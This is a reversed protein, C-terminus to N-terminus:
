AAAQLKEYEAHVEAPTRYGLASHLRYAMPGFLVPLGGARAGDIVKALHQVVDNKKVTSKTLDWAAGGESLFDNVPDIVLLSARNRRPFVPGGVEGAQGDVNVGSTGDAEGAPVAGAM